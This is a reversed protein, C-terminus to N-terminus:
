QRSVISSEDAGVVQSGEVESEIEKEVARRTSLWGRFRANRVEEWNASGKKTPVMSATAKGGPSHRGGM